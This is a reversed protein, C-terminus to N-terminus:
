MEFRFTRCLGRWLRTALPQWGAHIKAHGTTGAALRGTHDDLPVSAQYTVDIPRETGQEDTRTPLDGGSKLALAAPIAQMEQHSLLEISGALREGPLSTPYLDVAQGEALFELEEQAITLIAELQQPQTIRGITTSAPLYAGVNRVDLPRGSWSPLTSTGSVERARAVAPLLVGAAPARVILRRNQERRQDLQEELAALAQRAAALDLHAEDDTHAQQRLADLRAALQDRESILSQEAARAEINELELIPQGEEVAGGAIFIRKVEGPVDVYVNTAGRPQLFFRCPVYHPLPVLLVAGIAAATLALMLIARGKKVRDVRGPVQFLKVIRWLPVVLLTAVMAAALMQGIVKLGYPELLQYLFWFISLTVLWGYVASAVSYLAFLWQRRAPLFPDHPQELGLYWWALKRSLLQSAKQRLNPIELLDALIYYGDFRMLPNANFLITSVSCVFMVNLCLGSVLGPRSYWWVFTALSALILEVYMGAAGVAARKWKSAIMWSDSVNCYLCPTFVLLMLGMEHCEGGLRKCALGHGFEHLVKTVALTVALALWNQAAFFEHFAPLRSRFVEFEAAILLLASLMLGLAAVVAPASFIWGCWGDLWSLWRDPDIGRFRIALLNGLKALALQQQRQAARRALQVGQGAADALLLGSRHLMGILQNLEGRTVQQPAFRREFQQRVEDLSIRGDLLQLIAFEPEEFRYYKLALPDKVVWYKRGQNQQTTVELDPRMRVALPRSSSSTLHSM